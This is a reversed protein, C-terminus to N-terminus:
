HPFEFSPFLLEIDKFFLRKRCYRNGSGDTIVNGMDEFPERSDVIVKSCSTQRETYTRVCKM